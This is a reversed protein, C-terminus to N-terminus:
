PTAFLRVHSLSQFSSFQVTYCLCNYEINKLLGYHLLIHFLIIIYIIKYKVMIKKDRQLTNKVETIEQFSSASINAEQQPFYQLYNQTM